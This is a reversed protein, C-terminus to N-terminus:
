KISRTFPFVKTVGMIDTLLLVLFVLVIAGVLGDGGAPLADIRAALDAVEDDSLSDVRAQVDAPKVGMAELRARVDARALTAGIRDREVSAAIADTPIPGALAPPAVSVAIMTSVLLAAVTSRAQKKM